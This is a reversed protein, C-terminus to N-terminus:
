RWFFLQALLFTDGSYKKSRNNIVQALIVTGLDNFNIAGPSLWGVTLATSLGQIFQDNNLGRVFDTSPNSFERNQSM